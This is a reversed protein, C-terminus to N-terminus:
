KGNIFVEKKIYNIKDRLVAAEEYNETDVADKLQKHLQNLRRRTRIEAVGDVSFPESEKKREEPGNHFDMPWVPMGGVAQKSQRMDTQQGAIIGAYRSFNGLCEDCIFVENNQGMFNVLFKNTAHHKGCFQCVM